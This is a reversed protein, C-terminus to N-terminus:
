LFSITKCLMGAVNQYQSKRKTIKYDSTPVFVCSANQKKKKKNNCFPRLRNQITHTHVCINPAYVSAHTQRSTHAECACNTVDVFNTQKKKKAKKRM